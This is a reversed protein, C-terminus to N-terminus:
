GRWGRHHGRRDLMERLKQQQEPKLSDYFDAMATIVAPSGQRIATTKNDVLAQARARDFQAGAILAKLGTYPEGGNALMAKRQAALTDALATLKAKQTTDLDLKRSAKEVMRGRMETREAETMHAGWPGHPRHSCAALSGAVLSIGFIGILTRQLWPRMHLAKAFTNFLGGDHARVAEIDKRARM